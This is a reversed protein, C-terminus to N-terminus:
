EDAKFTELLNRTIRALGLYFQSDTRQEIRDFFEDTWRFHSEAFRRLVRNLETTEHDVLMLKSVFDLQVGLHDVLTSPPQYGPLLEFFSQMSAVSDSQFMQEEWVSQVPSVHDRPGVLLQCYEVALREITQLDLDSPVHGDLSEFSAKLEPAQLHHLLEADVEHLWLRSLFALSSSMAASENLDTSTM